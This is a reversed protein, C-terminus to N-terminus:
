RPFTRLLFGVFLKDRSEGGRGTPAERGHFIGPQPNTRKAALLQAIRSSRRKAHRWWPIAATGM